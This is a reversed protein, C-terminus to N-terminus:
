AVVYDTVHPHATLTTTGQVTHSHSSGADSGDGTTHPLAKRARRGAGEYQEYICPKCRRDGARKYVRIGLVTIAVVDSVRPNQARTM